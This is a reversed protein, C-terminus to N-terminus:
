KRIRVKTFSKVNQLLDVVRLSSNLFMTLSLWRFEKFFKFVSVEDFRRILVGCEIPTNCIRLVDSETRDVGVTWRRQEM